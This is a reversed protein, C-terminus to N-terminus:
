KVTAIKDDKNDPQQVGGTMLSLFNEFNSKLLNLETKVQNFEEISVSKISESTKDNPQTTSSFGEQSFVKISSKGDLGFSKTYIKGNAFDTFFYDNGDMPVMFAKVEDLGSVPRGFMPNLMNSTNIQNQDKTNMGPYPSSGGYGSGFTKNADVYTTMPNNIIGPDAYGSPTMGPNMGYMGTGGSMSPYMMGVYPNYM